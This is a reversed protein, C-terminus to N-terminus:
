NASNTASDGMSKAFEPTAVMERFFNGWAEQTKENLSKWYDLPDQLNPTEQTLGAAAKGPIQIMRSVWDFFDAPTPISGTKESM